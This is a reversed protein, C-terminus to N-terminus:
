TATRLTVPKEQERQFVCWKDFNRNFEVTLPRKCSASAEHHRDSVWPTGSVLAPRSVSATSCYSVRNPRERSGFDRTQLVFQM